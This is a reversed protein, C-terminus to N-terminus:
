GHKVAKAAKLEARRKDLAKAIGEETDPVEEPKCKLTLAIRQKVANDM